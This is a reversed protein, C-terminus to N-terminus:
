GPHPLAAGEEGGAFPENQLKHTIGCVGLELLNLLDDFLGDWVAPQEAEELALVGEEASSRSQRSPSIEMGGTVSAETSTGEGWGQIGLTTCDVPLVAGEPPSAPVAKDNPSLECFHLHSKPLQIVM